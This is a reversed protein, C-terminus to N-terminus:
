EQPLLQLLKRAREVVNKLSALKADDLPPSNTMRWEFQRLFKDLTSRIWGIAVREALEEEAGAKGKITIGPVTKKGTAFYARIAQRAEAMETALQNEPAEHLRRLLSSLMETLEKQCSPDFCIQYLWREQGECTNDGYMVAGIVFTHPESPIELKASALSRQLPLHFLEAIEADAAIEQHSTHINESSPADVGYSARCITQDSVNKLTLLYINAKKKGSIVQLGTTHNVLSLQDLPVEEAVLQTAKAVMPALGFRPLEALEITEGDRILYTGVPRESEDPVQTWQGDRNDRQSLALELIVADAPLHTSIKLSKFDGALSPNEIGLLQRPRYRTTDGPGQRVDQIVPPLNSDSIPSIELRFAINEFLQKHFEHRSQVNM